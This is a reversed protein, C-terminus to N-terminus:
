QSFPDDELIQVNLISKPKPRDRRRSELFQQIDSLDELTQPDLKERQPLSARPISSQKSSSLFNDNQAQPSYINDGSVGKGNQNMNVYNDNNKVQQVRDFQGQDNQQPNVQHISQSLNQKQFNQSKQIHSTDENFDFQPFQKVLDQNYSQDQNRAQGQISLKQQPMVQAKLQTSKEQQTNSLKPKQYDNDAQFNWSQQQIKQHELSEKGQFQSQHQNQIGVNKNLQKQSLKQQLNPQQNLLNTASENFDIKQLNQNKSISQFYQSKNIQADNQHLQNNINKYKRPFQQYENVEHQPNDSGQQNLNKNGFNSSLYRAENQKSPGKNMNQHQYQPDLQNEQTKPYEEQYYQPIQHNYILCDAELNNQRNNQSPQKQEQIQQQKKEQILSNSRRNLYNQHDEKQNQPDTFNQQMQNVNEYIQSTDQKQNQYQRVEKKEIQAKQPDLQGLEDEYYEFNNKDDNYIRPQGKFQEIKQYQIYQQTQNIHNNFQNQNNQNQTQKPTPTQQKSNQNQFNQQSPNQAQTSLNNQIQQPYNNDSQNKQHNKQDQQVKSINNQSQSLSNSDDDNKINQNSPNANQHRNKFQEQQRQDQIFSQKQNRVYPNQGAKKGQSQSSHQEFNIGAFDLPQDNQQNAQSQQIFPQLSQIYKNSQNQQNQRNANQNNPTEKKLNQINQEDQALQYIKNQFKQPYASLQNSTQYYQDGLQQEYNQYQQSKDDEQDKDHQQPLQATQQNLQQDPNYYQIQNKDQKYKDKESIKPSFDSSSILKNKFQSQQQSQEVQENSIQYEALNIDDFNKAQKNLNLIQEQQNLLQQKSVSNNYQKPNTQSATQKQISRDQIPNHGQLQPYNQISQQQNAIQENIQIYEDQIQGIQNRNNSNILNQIPKNAKQQNQLSYSQNLNQIEDKEIQDNTPQQYKIKQENNQKQNVNLEILDNNDQNCAFDIERFNILENNLKEVNQQIISDKQSNNLKNQQQIQRNQRNFDIPSSIEKQFNQDSPNKERAAYQDQQNYQQDNKTLQNLQPNQDQQMYNIFSVASINPWNGVKQSQVQDQNLFNNQNQNQHKQQYASLNVLQDQPPRQNAQKVQYFLNQNAQENLEGFNNTDEFNNPKQNQQFSQAQQSKPQQQQIMNQNYLVQYNQSNAEKPTFIDQNLYQKQIHQQQQNNAPQQFQNQLNQSQRGKLQNSQTQKVNEAQSKQYFSDRQINDLQKNQGQNQHNFYQHPYQKQQDNLQQGQKQENQYLNNQQNKNKIQNDQNQEGYINQYSQYQNSKIDERDSYQHEQFIQKSHQNELLQQNNIQQKQKKVLELDDEGTLNIQRINQSSLQTPNQQQNMQKPQVHQDSQRQQTQPPLLNQQFRQKDQIELSQQQSNQIMNNQIQSQLTKHENLEQSANQRFNYSQNKFSSENAPTNFGQQFNQSPINQQSLNRFNSQKQTQPSETLSNYYYQTAEQNEPLFSPMCNTELNPTAQLTTSKQTQIKNQLNYIPSLNLDLNPPINSNIKSDINNNPNREYIEQLNIKNQSHQQNESQKFRQMQIQSAKLQDKKQQDRNNVNIKNNDHDLESYNQQVNRKFNDNDIQSTQQEKIYQQQQSTNQISNNQSIPNEGLNQNQHKIQTNNQRQDQQIHSPLIQSYQQNGSGQNRYIMQQNNELHTNQNNELQNFRSNQQNLQSNQNMLYKQPQEQSNDYFQYNQQSQSNQQQILFQQQNRSLNNKNIPLLQNQSQSQSYNRTQSNQSQLGQRNQPLFQSHQAQNNYFQKKDQVSSSQYNQEEKPQNNLNQSQNYQINQENRQNQKDRSSLQNNQFQPLMNQEISNSQENRNKIYEQLQFKQNDPQSQDEYYIQTNQPQANQAQQPLTELNQLYNGQQGQYTSYNQEKGIKNSNQQFQTQNLPHQNYQIQLYSQSQNLKLSNQNLENKYPNLQDQDQFQAYQGKQILQSQQNQFSSNIQYSDVDQFENQNSLYNEQQKLQNPQKFQNKDFQNSSKLIQNQKDNYPNQSDSNQFIEFNQTQNQHLANEQKQNQEATQNQYQQKQRKVSDSDVNVDQDIVGQDQITQQNPVQNQYGQNLDNQNQNNQFQKQEYQQQIHQQPNNSFFEQDKQSVGQQQNQQMYNIPNDAQQQQIQNSYNSSQRQPQRQQSQSIQNQNSNGTQDAKLDYTQSQSNIQKQITNDSPKQSFQNAINQQNLNKRSNQKKPSELLNNNISKESKLSQSPRVQNDPLFSIMGNNEIKPTVEQILSKQSQIRNQKNQIPSLSLDIKPLYSQLDPAKLSIQNKNQQVEETYRQPDQLMDQNQQQTKNNIYAQDFPSQQNSIQNQFYIQSNEQQQDINYLLQQSNYQTDNDQAQFTQLKEKIPINKNNQYYMNSQLNPNQNSQVIFKEQARHIENPSNIMNPQGLQMNQDNSQQIQQYYNSEIQMKNNKQDNQLSQQQYNQVPQQENQFSNSPIQNSKLNQPLIQFNQKSNGQQDQLMQLKDQFPANFNSQQHRDNNQNLNLDGENCIQLSITFQNPQNIQRNQDNIQNQQAYLYNPQKYDATNQQQSSNQILPFNNDQVSAQNEYQSKKQQINYINKPIIESLQQVESGSAQFTQLKKKNARTQNDYQQDNFHDSNEQIQSLLQPESQKQQLQNQQKQQPTLQNQFLSEGYQYQSNDLSIQNLYSCEKQDNELEQFQNKHNPYIQQQQQNNPQTNQNQGHRQSSDLINAQKDYSFGQDFNNQIPEINILQDDYQIGEQKYPGAQQQYQQKQRKRQDPNTDEFNDISRQNQLNQQYPAQIYNGQNQYDIDKQNQNICQFQQTQNHEQPIKAKVGQNIQNMNKNQIQQQQNINSLNIQPEGIKSQPIQVQNSEITHGEIVNNAQPLSKSQNAAQNNFGKQPLQNPINHQSVQQQYNIKQDDPYKVQDRSNKQQNAQLQAMAENQPYTRNTQGNQNQMIQPIQGQENNKYNSADLKQNTNDQSFAKQMQDVQNQIKLDISKNKEYNNFNQPQFQNLSKMNQRLLPNEQKNVQNLHDQNQQNTQNIQFQQNSAIQPYLQNNNNQKQNQVQQNQGQHTNNKGQQNSQSQQDYCQNMQPNKDAYIQSNIPQYKEINQAQNQYQESQFQQFNSDYIQNQSISRNRDQQNLNQPLLNSQDRSISNQNLNKFSSEQLNYNQTINKNQIQQNDTELNSKQRKNPFLTQQYQQLIEQQELLNQSQQDIEPYNQNKANEFLNSHQDANQNYSYLSNQKKFNDQLIQQNQIDNQSQQQQKLDIQQKHGQIQEQNGFQGREEKKSQYNENPQLESISPYNSNLEDGEKQKFINTNQLSTPQLNNKNSQNNPTLTSQSKFISPNYKQQFTNRSYPSLSSSQRNNNQRQNYKDRSPSIKEEQSNLNNLISLQSISNSPNQQLPNEQQSLVYSLDSVDLEQFRFNNFMQPQAQSSLSNPTMQQSSNFKFIPMNKNLNDHLEQQYVKGDGFLKNSFVDYSNDPSFQPLNEDQDIQNCSPSGQANQQQRIRLALSTSSKPSISRNRNKITEIQQNQQSFEPVRLSNNNNNNNMNNNGGRMIQMIQQPTLFPLQPKGIPEKYFEDQQQQNQNNNSTDFMSKDIQSFQGRLSVPTSPQMRIQNVRDKKPKELSTNLQEKLKQNNDDQYYFQNGQSNTPSANQSFSQNQSQNLWRKIQSPSFHADQLNNRQLSDPNQEKESNNLTYDRQSRDQPVEFVSTSDQDIIQIHQSKPSQNLFKNQRAFIQQIQQPTMIPLQQRMPYLQNRNQIELSRELDSSQELLSNGVLSVPTPPQPMNNIQKKQQEVQPKQQQQYFQNALTSNNQASMLQKIQSPTLYNMQPKGPPSYERSQQQQLSSNQNLYPLQQSNDNIGILSVPTQSQVRIQSVRQNSGANFNVSPDKSNSTKENQNRQENFSENQINISNNYQDQSNGSNFKLPNYNGNTQYQQEYIEPENQNQLSFLPQIIQKQQFANLQNEQDQGSNLNQFLNQPYELVKSVEDESKVIIKPIDSQIKVQNTANPSCEIFYESKAIQNGQGIKDILNKNTLQVNEEILQQNQSGLKNNSSPMFSDSKIYDIYNQDPNEYNSYYNDQDTLRQPEKKTQEQQNLSEFQQPAQKLEFQNQQFLNNEIQLEPKKTEQFDENEERSNLFENQYENEQNQPDKNAYQKEFNSNQNKSRKIKNLEDEEEFNIQKQDDEKQQDSKFNQTDEKQNNEQDKRQENQNGNEKILQDRLPLKARKNKENEQFEPSVLSPYNDDAQLLNNNEFFTNNSPALNDQYYKQNSNYDTLRPSNYKSNSNAFADKFVAQLQDYKEFHNIQKKQLDDMQDQLKEIKNLKEGDQKLQNAIEQAYFKKNEENVKKVIQNILSSQSSSKNLEGVSLYNVLPFKLKQFAMFISCYKLKECIQIMKYIKQQRYYIQQYTYISIENFSYALQMNIKSQLYGQLIMLGQILKAQKIQKINKIYNNYSKLKKFFEQKIQENNIALRNLSMQLAMQQKQYIKLAIKALYEARKKYFNSFNRILNFSKEKQSHKKLAITKQIVTTLQQIKNNRNLIYQSKLAIAAMGEIKKRRINNLSTINIIRIAEYKLKKSSSIHSKIQSFATNKNLILHKKIVNALLNILAIQSTQIQKIRLQSRFYVQIEQFDKKKQQLFLNEINKILQKVSQNQKKKAKEQSKLKNFSVKYTQLIKQKLFNLIFFSLHKYIAKNNQKKFEKDNYYQKISNFSILMMQTQNKQFIQILKTFLLYQPSYQNIKQNNKIKNFGTQLNKVYLKRTLIALLTSQAAQNKSNLNLNFTIIKSFAQSIKKKYINGLILTLREYNRKQYEVYKQIQRIGQRQRNQQIKKMLNVFAKIFITQDKIKSQNYMKNLNNVKLRWFCERLNRANKKRMVKNIQFFFVSEKKIRTTKSLWAYFARQIPQNIRHIYQNFLNKLTAQKAMRYGVKRHMEQMCSSMLRHLARDVVRFLSLLAREYNVFRDLEKNNVSSPLTRKNLIKKLLSRRKLYLNVQRRPSPDVRNENDLSTSSSCGSKHLSSQINDLAEEDDVIVLLSKVGQKDGQEQIKEIILKMKEINQKKFKKMIKKQTLGQIFNKMLVIRFVVEKWNLQKRFIIKSIIRVAREFEFCCMINEFSINSFTVGESKMENFILKIKGLESGSNKEFPSKKVPQPKKKTIPANFLQNTINFKQRVQSCEKIEQFSQLQKRRVVCKIANILKQSAVKQIDLNNKQERLQIFFDLQNSHKHKDFVSKLVSNIQMVQKVYDISTKYSKLLPSSAISSYNSKNESKDYQVQDNESAKRNPTKFDM